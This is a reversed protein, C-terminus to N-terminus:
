RGVALEFLRVTQSNVAHLERKRTGAIENGLDDVVGCRKRIHRKLVFTDERNGTLIRHDTIHSSIAARLAEEFDFLATRKSNLTIDVDGFERNTSVARHRDIGRLRIHRVGNLRTIEFDFLAADECSFSRSNFQCIGTRSTIFTGTGNGTRRLDLADLSRAVAVEKDGSRQIDRIDKLHTSAGEINTICITRGTRQRNTRQLGTRNIDTRIPGLVFADADSGKLSKFEASGNLSFFLCDDRDAGISVSSVCHLSKSAERNSFRGDRTVFRNVSLNRPRDVVSDDNISGVDDLTNDASTSCIM